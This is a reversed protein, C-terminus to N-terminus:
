LGINCILCVLHLFRDGTSVLSPSTPSPTKKLKNALRKFKNLVIKFHLYICLTYPAGWMNAACRASYLIAMWLFTFCLVVLFFFFFHTGVIFEVLVPIRM